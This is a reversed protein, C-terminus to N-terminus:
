KRCELGFNVTLWKWAACMYREIEVADSLYGLMTVVWWGVFM